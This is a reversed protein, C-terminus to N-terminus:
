LVQAHTVASDFTELTQRIYNDMTQSRSLNRGAEGMRTRLNPEQLLLEIKQSLARTDNPPIIFGTEGDSVFEPNGGVSTAIVPLGASGAERLSLSALEFRSPLCFVQSVWYASALEQGSLPGTSVLSDGLEEFVRSYENRFKVDVPGVLLCKLSPFKPRLSLVAKLLIDVGKSKEVRGVFVVIYDNEAIHHSLRFEEMTKNDPKPVPSIGSRVVKIKLASIGKSEILGAEYLTTPLIRSANRLVFRGQTLEVINYAFDRIIGNSGYIGIPKVILPIRNRRCVLTTFLSSFHYYHQAFAVDYKSFKGCSRLASISYDLPGHPIFNIHTLGDRVLLHSDKEFSCITM